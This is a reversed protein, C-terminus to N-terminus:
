LDVKELEHNHGITKFQTLHNPSELHELTTFPSSSTGLNSSRYKRQGALRDTLAVLRRVLLLIEDDLRM